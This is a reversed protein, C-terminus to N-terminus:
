DNSDDNLQDASITGQKLLKKITLVRYHRFMEDINVAGSEQMMKVWELIMEQEAMRGSEWNQLFHYPGSMVTFMDLDYQNGLEYEEDGAGFCPDSFGYNLDYFVYIQEDSLVLGTFDCRIEKLAVKSTGVGTIPDFRVVKHYIKMTPREKVEADDPIKISQVSAPVIGPLEVM